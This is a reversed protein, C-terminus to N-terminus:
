REKKFPRGSTRSVFMILHHVFVYSLCPITFVVTFARSVILLDKIAFLNFVVVQECFTSLSFMVKLNTVVNNLKLIKLCVCGYIFLIFAYFLHGTKSLVNQSAVFEM